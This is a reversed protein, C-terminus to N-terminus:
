CTVTPLHGTEKLIRSVLKLVPLSQGEFKGARPSKTVKLWTGSHVTNVQVYEEQCLVRLRRRKIGKHKKKKKGEEERRIFVGAWM